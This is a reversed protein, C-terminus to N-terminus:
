SIIVLKGKRSSDRFDRIYEIGPVIFNDRQLQGWFDM